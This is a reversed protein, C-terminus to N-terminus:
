VIEGGGLLKDEDYFVAYQGSTVGQVSQQLTVTAIKNKITVQCNIPKSQYRIKVSSTFNTEDIFLNLNKVQFENQELDEKTGVIVENNKANIKVVYHPTLAGKITFGKRQGITYHMYGKHGGIPEGNVNKVVGNNDPNFHKKIIDIYNTPVFCIESSEKQTALSSIIKIKEVEFKIDKKIKNALPFLLYKIHEKKVKALFYSQDKTDDKAKYFFGDKINIYHGTAVKDFGNKIAYEVLSGLKIERNCMVCPNPTIGNKYSNVFYDYVNEKFENQLDLVTYDIGLYSTIKKINQLNKEHYSDNEFLKLYVGHVEFGENKLLYATYSSDVGGSLAVLIKLPFSQSLLHKNKM